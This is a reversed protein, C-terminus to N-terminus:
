YTSTNVVYSKTCSNEPAGQIGGRMRVCVCVGGGGGGGEEGSGGGGGGEEIICDHEYGM